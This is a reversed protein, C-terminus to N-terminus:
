GGASEWIDANNSSSDYDLSIHPEIGHFAPVEIDVSTTYSGISGGVPPKPENQGVSLVDPPASATAAAQTSGGVIVVQGSAASSGALGGLAVLGIVV